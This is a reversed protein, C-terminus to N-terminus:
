IFRELNMCMNKIDLFCRYFRTSVVHQNICYNSLHKLLKSSWNVMRWIWSGGLVRGRLKKIYESM